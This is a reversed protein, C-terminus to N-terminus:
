AESRRSSQQASEPPEAEATDASATEGEAAIRLRSASPLAEQPLRESVREAERQLARPSVHKSLGFRAHLALPLLMTVFPFLFWWQGPTTLFNILFSMGNIALFLSLHHGFWRRRRSVIRQELAAISKSQAEEEAAREIQQPSLGIETGIELLQEHSLAGSSASDKPGRLARDLIARVESEDYSRSKPSAM